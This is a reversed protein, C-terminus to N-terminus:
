SHKWEENMFVAVSKADKHNRYDGPSDVFYRRFVKIFYSTYAYGCQMAIEDISISKDSLLRLAHEMRLRTIYENVGSNAYKRVLRSLHSPTIHLDDAISERSIPLYFSRELQEQICEWLFRSKDRAEMEPTQLAAIVIKLLAMYNYRIAPSTPSSNCLAQLTHVGELSLKQPTHYFVDPGNTIPRDPAGPQQNIYIARIFKEHFALSIMRHPQHWLECSWAGPPCILVDGPLFDRQCVKNNRSYIMPKRNELPIILRPFRTAQANSGAPLLPRSQSIIFNNYQLNEAERLFNLMQIRSLEM